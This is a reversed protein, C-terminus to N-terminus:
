SLDVIDHDLQWCVWAVPGVSLPYLVAFIVVGSRIQGRPKPELEHDDAM